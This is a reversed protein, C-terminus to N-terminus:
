IRWNSWGDVLYFDVSDAQSAGSQQSALCGGDGSWCKLPVLALFPSAVLDSSGGISVHMQQMVGSNAHSLAENAYPLRPENPKVRSKATSFGDTM